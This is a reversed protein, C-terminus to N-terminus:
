RLLNLWVALTQETFYGNPATPLVISGDAGALPPTRCNDFNLRGCLAGGALAHGEGAYSVGIAQPTM